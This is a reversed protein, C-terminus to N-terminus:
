TSDSEAETPLIPTSPSPCVQEVERGSGSDMVVEVDPELRSHRQSVEKEDVDAERRQRDDSGGAPMPDQQSQDRSRGQQADTSTRNGEGHRGGAVVHPEPRLLSGSPDVSEGATGAGTGDPKNKKGRM